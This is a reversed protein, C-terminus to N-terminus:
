PRGVTEGGQLADLRRRSTRALQQDGVQDAAEARIKLSTPLFVIDAIVAPADVVSAAEIAEYPLRRALYLQALLIRDAVLSEWPFGSILRRPATPANAALTAIAATTDRRALSLRARLSRTLPADRGRREVAAEYMAQTPQIDGMRALWSGALWISGDGVEDPQRAFLAVIRAAFNSAAASDSADAMADLTLLQPRVQLSFVSDSEIVGRARNLDGRAVLIGQWAVLAGFRLNGSPDASGLAAAAEEACHPQQLGGGTLVQLANYVLEPDRAAEAQWDLPKGIGLACKTALTLYGVEGSDPHGAAFTDLLDVASSDQRRLAAEILHPLAPAFATDLLRVQLFAHQALSDISGARPLLHAYVEGLAMWGEVSAPDIDLVQRFRAVASDAHGEQYALLGHGFAAYKPPLSDLRSGTSAILAAAAPADNLWSAAQAARLAAYTFTSDEALAARYHTLAETFAARRYSDEGLFFAARAAPSRGQGAPLPVGSSSTPLLRAVLQNAAEYGVAWNAATLPQTVTPVTANLGDPTRIALTLRLSDQAFLTGEVWRRLGGGARGTGPDQGPPVRWEVASIVGSSNLSGVLASTIEATRASDSVGPSGSHVLIGVRNEDGSPPAAHYIGWILAAGVALGGLAFLGRWSRRHAPASPMPTPVGLQRLAKLVQDANLPRDVPLKPLLRHTLEALAPPVAPRLVAVPTPTDYMQRALIAQATAGSFPPEGTLMEYLVTGLAYLDSRPDIDRSGTAQEPSM